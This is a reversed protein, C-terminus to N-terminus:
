LFLPKVEMWRRRQPIPMLTKWRLITKKKKLHMVRMQYPIKETDAEEWALATDQEWSRWQEETWEQWVEDEEDAEENDDEKVEVEVTVMVELPPTCGFYSTMDISDEGELWEELLVGNPM